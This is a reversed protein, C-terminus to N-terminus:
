LKEITPSGRRRLSEVYTRRTMPNVTGMRPWAEPKQELEFSEAKPQGSVQLHVSHRQDGWDLGVYAAFQQEHIM